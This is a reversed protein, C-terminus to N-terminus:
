DQTLMRFSSQTNFKLQHQRGLIGEGWIRIPQECYCYMKDLVHHTTTSEKKYTTDSVRKQQKQLSQLTASYKKRRRQCCVIYHNM